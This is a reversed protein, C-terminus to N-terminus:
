LETSLTTTSFNLNPNQTTLIFTLGQGRGSPNFQEIELLVSKTLRFYLVTIIYPLRNYRLFKILIHTCM